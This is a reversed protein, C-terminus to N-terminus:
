YSINVDGKSNTIIPSKGGSTHAEIKSVESQKPTVDQNIVTKANSPSTLLSDKLDGWIQLRCNTGSKFGELLDKQLLGQYETSQYKAAGAIGLNALKSIIGELEAKGKGSLEINNGKGVLPVEKCFKDAFEAIIDLGQKKTQLNENAMCYGGYQGSILIGVFFFRCIKTKLNNNM